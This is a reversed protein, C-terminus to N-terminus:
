CRHDQIVTFGLINIKLSKQSYFLSSRRFPYLYLSLNGALPFQWLSERTKHANARIEKKVIKPQLRADYLLRCQLRSWIPTYHLYSVV